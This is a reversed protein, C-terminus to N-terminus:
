RANSTPQITGSMDSYGIVASGDPQEPPIRILVSEPPATDTGGFYEFDLQRSGDRSPIAIFQADPIYSPVLQQLSSPYSGGHDGAYLKCALGISKARHLGDRLVARPRIVSVLLLWALCFLLAAVCFGKSITKRTSTSTKM